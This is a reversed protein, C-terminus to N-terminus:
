WHGESAFFKILRKQIHIIKGPTMLLICQEKELKKPERCFPVNQICLKKLQASKMNLGSAIANKVAVIWSTKLRSESIVRNYYKYYQRNFQPTEKGWSM